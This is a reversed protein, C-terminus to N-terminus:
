VLWWLKGLRHLYFILTRVGNCRYREKMWKISPFIDGLVFLLRYKPHISRVTAKYSAKRFVPNKGLFPNLICRDPFEISNGKDLLLIDSYSRLQCEGALAHRELHKILYKLHDEPALIWAKTNDVLIEVANEFFDYHGMEKTTKYDFLKTHIELSYGEKFVAPLHQNIDRMIKIHLQSKPTKLTFGEKLLLHWAKLSDERQILIDNDNMQRLGRAGYLTHELAM